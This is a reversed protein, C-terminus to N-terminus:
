IIGLPEPHLYSLLLRLQCVRSGPLCCHVIRITHQVGYRSGNRTQAHTGTMVWHRGAALTLAMALKYVSM